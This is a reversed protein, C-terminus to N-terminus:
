ILGLKLIFYSLSYKDQAFECLIMDFLVYM